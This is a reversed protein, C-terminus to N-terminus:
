RRLTVPSDSSLPLMRMRPTLLRCSKAINIATELKDGTLMWIAIGAEQLEAIAEPVGDQLRDEVATAGLLILDREMEAYLDPLRLDRDESLDADNVRELWREAVEATLKREAVLLTRLGVGACRDLFWQAAM